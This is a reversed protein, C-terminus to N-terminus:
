AEMEKIREEIERQLDKYSDLVSKAKQKIARNGADVYASISMYKNHAEKVIVGEYITTDFPVAGYKTFEILRQYQELHVNYDKNQTLLLGLIKAKAKITNKELTQLDIIINKIGDISSIEADSVVICYDCAIYAMFLLPGRAPACDLFIYDYETLYKMLYKLLTIDGVDHFEISANDLYQSSAIFDFGEDSHQIANTIVDYDPNLHELNEGLIHQTDYDDDTEDVEDVIKKIAWLITRITPKDKFDAKAYKSFDRQGDLDITLVKFGNKAYIASLEFSVTTKGVGGKQNAVMIVKSM